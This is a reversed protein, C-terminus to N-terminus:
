LAGFTKVFKGPSCYTRTFFRAADWRDLGIGYIRDFFSVPLAVPSIV